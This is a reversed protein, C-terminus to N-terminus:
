TEAQIQKIAKCCNSSNKYKFNCYYQGIKVVNRSILISLHFYLQGINKIDRVKNSFFLDFYFTM